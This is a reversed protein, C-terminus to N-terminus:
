VVGPDKALDELMSAPMTYSAGRFHGLQKRLAGGRGFVKQHYTVDPTRDFQVIVNVNNTTATLKQLDRSIKPSSAMALTAILFLALMTLVRRGWMVSKTKKGKM